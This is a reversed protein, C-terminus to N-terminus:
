DIKLNEPIKFINLSDPFIFDPFVLKMSHGENNKCVLFQFASFLLDMTSDKKAFPFGFQICDIDSSGLDGLFTLYYKKQNPALTDFNSSWLEGIATGIYELSDGKMIFRRRNEPLYIDGFSESDKIIYITDSSNNRVLLIDLNGMQSPNINVSTTDIGYNTWLKGSSVWEIDKKKVFKNTCWCLSVIFVFSSILKLM